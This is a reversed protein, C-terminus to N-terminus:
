SARSGGLRAVVKAIVERDAAAELAASATIRGLTLLRELAMDHSQMGAAAGSQMVSVLQPTHGERIATSVTPSRLLIEHAVVGSRGETPLLLRQGVVAVLSEALAGRLSPAAPVEGTLLREIGDVVSSAVMTAVVLMGSSALECLAAGAAAPVDGVYVVDVEDRGVQRLAADRSPAHTGLERQSIQARRPEHVVEIPDEITVVHCARTKNVQDLIAAATTTKGSGAPGVVLVLGARGDALRWLAEPCGLQALSPVRTPISRLVVSAGSAARTVSARYRVGARDVSCTLRREVALRALQDPGLLEELLRDADGSPVPEDELQVLARGQRGFPPRGAVVHLSTAGRKEMEDLLTELRSTM